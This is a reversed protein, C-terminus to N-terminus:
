FSQAALVLTGVETEPVGFRLFPCIVWGRAGGGPRPPRRPGAGHCAPGGLLSSGSLPIPPFAGSYLYECSFWCSHVPIRPYHGRKVLSKGKYVKPSLVRSSIGENNRSLYFLDSFCTNEPLNYCLQLLRRQLGRYVSAPNVTGEGRRIKHNELRKMM